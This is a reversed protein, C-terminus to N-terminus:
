RVQGRAALEDALAQSGGSLGDTRVLLVQPGAPRARWPRPTLGRRTVTAGTRATIWLSDTRPSAAAIDSLALESRLGLQEDVVRTATVWVGGPRLRGTAWLLPFGLLYLTPVLGVVAWLWSETVAGIVTTAACWLGLTTTILLLMRETSARPHFRAPEGDLEADRAPATAPARRSMGAVASALVVLGMLAFGVAWATGFPSGVRGLLAIGIAIALAGTLLGGAVGAPHLRRGSM